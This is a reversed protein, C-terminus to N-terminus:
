RGSEVLRELPRGGLQGEFAPYDWLARQRSLIPEDDPVALPESKQIGIVDLPDLAGAVVRADVAAWARVQHAAGQVAQLASEGFAAVEDPDTARGEDVHAGDHRELPVGLAHEDDM